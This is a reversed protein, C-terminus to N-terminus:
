RGLNREHGRAHQDDCRNRWRRLGARRNALGILKQDQGPGHRLLFWVDPICKKPALRSTV